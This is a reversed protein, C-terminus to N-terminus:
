IKYKTNALDILEMLFDLQNQSEPPMLKNQITQFIEDEDYACDLHPTNGHFTNAFPMEQQHIDNQMISKSSGPYLQVETYTSSTAGHFKYYINYLFMKKDM